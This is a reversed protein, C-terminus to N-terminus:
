THKAVKEPQSLAKYNDIDLYWLWKCIKTCIRMMSLHKMKSYIYYRLVKFHLSAENREINVLHNWLSM